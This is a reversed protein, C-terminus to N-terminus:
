GWHGEGYRVDKCMIYVFYMCVTFWIRESVSVSVGVVGM